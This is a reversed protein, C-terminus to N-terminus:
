GNGMGLTLQWRKLTGTDGPALDIAELYWTGEASLGRFKALQPANALSFNAVVHTQRGARRGQLLVRQGNPAVLSVELDGLYDHELDINVSLDAVPLDELVRIPSRVGDPHNDPIPFDRDNTGRVRKTVTASIDQLTKAELVARHANVRGYGFWQSHGHSDYTGLRKGLQPDAEADTIKDATRQLLDKVEAATLDPNVSLVLAAVGAVVPCASSTGGFGFTYDDRSYGSTGTRDTTFIGLGSLAQTVAPATSIFGTQQLWIGPPANNSPACVSIDPGWNSYAAKKGLSTSAAVCIANPHAAFGSMWRTTGSIVNNPWGRENLTGQTPRNANGAAFVVVCGKGSRGQTAARTVAAYQRMSLRFYVASAGWSCSIVAANHEVAWDFLEEISDDDLYGTTRVPMLACGPAVGVIGKGTEEALCVGACATGHNDTEAEPLPLFDKGRLDRPAVIKGIGQFDPHDIDISDDAIAVVISRDGQTIDWAQEAFIHSNPSLLAGGDHHLYWQRSYLDDAPRYAPSSRIVINPEAALVEDRDILRNALKIPNETANKTVRYVFAGPLGELPKLLQLGLDTAIANREAESVADDFQATIEDALYVFTGPNDRIQYVHSVFAIEDLNRTAVMADNLRDPDAVRFELLIAERRSGVPVTDCFQAPIRETLADISDPDNPRATFRDLAKDLALTEGGRQLTTGLEEAV